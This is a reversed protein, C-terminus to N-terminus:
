HKAVYLLLWVHVYMCVKAKLANYEACYREARLDICYFGGTVILFNETLKNLRQREFLQSNVM